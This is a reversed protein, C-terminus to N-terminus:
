ARVAAAPDMWAAERPSIGFFGADFCDADDVFGGWISNTRNGKAPDGMLAEADWREAPVESILSREAALHEWFADLGDAGPLRMGLGIIAVPERMGGKAM